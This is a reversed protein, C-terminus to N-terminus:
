TALPSNGSHRRNERQEAADSEVEARRKASLPRNQFWLGFPIPSSRPSSSHTLIKTEEATPEKGNSCPVYKLFREAMEPPESYYFMIDLHNTAENNVVAFATHKKRSRLEEKILDQIIIVKDSDTKVFVDKITGLIEKQTFEWGHPLSIYIM